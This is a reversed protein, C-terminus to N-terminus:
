LTLLWKEYTMHNGSTLFLQPAKQISFLTFGSHGRSKRSWENWLSPCKKAQLQSKKAWEAIYDEAHSM